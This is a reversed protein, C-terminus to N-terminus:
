FAQMILVAPAFLASATKDTQAGFLHVTKPTEM